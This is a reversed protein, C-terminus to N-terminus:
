WPAKRRIEFKADDKLRQVVAWNDPYGHEDMLEFLVNAENLAKQPNSQILRTARTVRAKFARGNKDWWAYDPAAKKETALVNLLARREASGKPLSAALRITNVRLENSM